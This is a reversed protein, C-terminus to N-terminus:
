NKTPQSAQKRKLKPSNFENRILNLSVSLKKALNKRADEENGHASKVANEFHTRRTYIRREENLVEM